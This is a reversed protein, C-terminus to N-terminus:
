SPMYNLIFEEVEELTMGRKIVEGKKLIKYTNYEVDREDRARSKSFVIGKNKAWRRLKVQINHINM